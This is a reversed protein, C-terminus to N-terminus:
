LVLGRASAQQNRTLYFQCFYKIDVKIAKTDKAKWHLLLLHLLYRKGRGQVATCFVLLFLLLLLKM